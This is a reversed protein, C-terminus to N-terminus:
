GKLFLLSPLPLMAWIFLAQPSGFYIQLASPLQWTISVPLISFVISFLFGFQILSVIVTSFLSFEASSLKKSIFSFKFILIVIIYVTIFLGIRLWAIEMSNGIVAQLNELYPFLRDFAFAIYISLLSIVAKTRGLSLGYLSVTVISFAGMLWGPGISAIGLNALTPRLVNLFELLKEIIVM